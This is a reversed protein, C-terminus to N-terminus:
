EQAEGSKKLAYKTLIPGLIEFVVSTATITTFVINGIHDGMTLGVDNIEPGLGQFRAKVVLALGIKFAVFGLVMHTIFEMNGLTKEDLFNLVSPGLLIGAVMYAIVNPLNLKKTFQSLVLPILFMIGILFLIPFSNNEFLNVM